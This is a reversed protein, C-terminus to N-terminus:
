KCTVLHWFAKAFFKSKTGYLLPHLASPLNRLLTSAYIAVIGNYKWCKTIGYHYLVLLIPYPVYFIIFSVVILYMMKLLNNEMEVIENRPKSVQSTSVANRSHMKLEAKPQSRPNFSVGQYSNQSSEDQSRTIGKNIVHRRIKIAVLSYAVVIIALPIYQVVVNWFVIYINYSRQDKTFCCNKINPYTPCPAMEIIVAQPLAIGTAVCWFSILLIKTHFPLVRRSPSYMILCRYVAIAALTIIINALFLTNFVLIIKCMAQGFVWGDNQGWTEEYYLIFPQVVVQGLESAALNAVLLYVLSKRGPITSVARLVMINGILSALLALATLSQRIYVSPVPDSIFACTTDNSPSADLSNNKM